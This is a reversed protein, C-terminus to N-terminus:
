KTLVSGVILKHDSVRSLNGHDFQRPPQGSIEALNMKLEHVPVDSALRRVLFALWDLGASNALSASTLLRSVGRLSEEQREHKTRTLMGRDVWLGGHGSAM